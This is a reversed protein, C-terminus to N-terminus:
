AMGTNWDLKRFGTQVASVLINSTFYRRGNSCAGLTSDQNIVGCYLKASVFHGVSFTPVILSCCSFNRALLLHALRNYYVILMKFTVLSALAGEHTM